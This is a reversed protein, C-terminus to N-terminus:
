RRKKLDKLQLYKRYNLLKFSYQRLFKEGSLISWEGQLLRCDRYYDNAEKMSKFEFVSIGGKFEEKDLKGGEFVYWAYYNIKDMINICKMSKKIEKSVFEIVNANSKNKKSEKIKLKKVTKKPKKVLVDFLSSMM